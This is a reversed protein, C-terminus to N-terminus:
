GLHLACRVDCLITPLPPCICVCRYEGFHARLPCPPRVLLAVLVPAQTLGFMKLAKAVVKHADSQLWQPLGKEVVDLMSPGSAVRKRGSSLHFQPGDDSASIKLTFSVAEAQDPVLIPRTAQMM